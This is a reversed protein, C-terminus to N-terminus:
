QEALEEVADSTKRVFGYPQDCTQRKCNGSNMASSSVSEVNIIVHSAFLEGMKARRVRVDSSDLLPDRVGDSGWPLHRIAPLANPYGRCPLQTLMGPRCLMSPSDDCTFLVVWVRLPADFICRALALLSPAIMM